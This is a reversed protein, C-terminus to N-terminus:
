LGRLSAPSSLFEELGEESKLIIWHFVDLGAYYLSFMILKVAM